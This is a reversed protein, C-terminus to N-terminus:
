CEFTVCVNLVYPNDSKVTKSTVWTSHYPGLTYSFVNHHECILCIQFNLIYRRKSSDLAIEGLVSGVHMDHSHEHM